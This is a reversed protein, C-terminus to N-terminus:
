CSFDKSRFFVGQLVVGNLSVILVLTGQRLLTEWNGQKNTELSCLPYPSRQLSDSSPLPWGVQPASRRRAPFHATWTRLSQARPGRWPCLTRSECCFTDNPDWRNQRTWYYAGEWYTWALGEKGTFVGKEGKWGRESNAVAQTQLTVPQISNSNPTEMGM